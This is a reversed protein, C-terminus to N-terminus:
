GKAHEAAAAAAGASDRIFKVKTFTRGAKTLIDVAAARVIYGALPNPSPGTEAVIAEAGAEDVAEIPVGAAESIFQKINGLAPEKDLTVVWSCLSGPLRDKHTSELIKFEAIFANKGTRTAKAICKIVELRYVGPLIYVGGESYKAESIKALMGM